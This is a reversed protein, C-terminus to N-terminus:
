KLAAERMGSVAVESETVIGVVEQPSPSGPTGTVLAFKAKTTHMERLLDNIPNKKPTLIYHRNAILRAKSGGMHAPAVGLVAGDSTVLVTTESPELVSEGDVIKFNEEMIDQVTMSESMAAQLGEPVIHGRRLLKLTYISGPSLWKRIGYAFSATVVIPLVVNADQTMELIMVVGTIFAGTSAGVGAAMGAIAFVVPNAEVGPVYGALHGIIAGMTAGMFLSPSFVGGSGGSGLTLCTAAFKCFFLLILLWPNSLVAKLIDMITAYGVGQVYYHGTYRMFLWLIVGVAFMASLHRTYTNGPMADFRDETWYIGRVFLTAVLGM